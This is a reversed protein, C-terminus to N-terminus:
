SNRCFTIAPQNLRSAVIRPMGTIAKWRPSSEGSTMSRMRNPPQHRPQRGRCGRELLVRFLPKSLLIAFGMPLHSLWGSGSQRDAFPTDASGM